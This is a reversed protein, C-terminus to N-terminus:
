RQYESSPNAEPSGGAPPPVNEAANFRNMAVEIGDSVWIECAEVAQAVARAITPRESPEFRSLVFEELDRPLTTAGVGIRLRTVRETGLADLCSQLGHHGGASGQARLRLQGLPLNVDDCVVLVTEPAIEFGRLADGSENMMALPMMVRVAEGRQQYEGYVAAPRGDGPSVVRHTVSVHHRAALADIVAFGVNHRTGHYTHGPNGLGM